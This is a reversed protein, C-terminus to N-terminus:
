ATKPSATGLRSGRADELELRQRRAPLLGEPRFRMTLIMAIGFILLRYTMLPRFVEPLGIM